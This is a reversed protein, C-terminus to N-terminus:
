AAKKASKSARGSKKMEAYVARGKNTLIVGGVRRTKRVLGEKILRKVADRDKVDELQPGFKEAAIFLFTTKNSNVLKTDTKTAM